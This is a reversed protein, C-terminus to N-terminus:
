GAPAGEMPEAPMQPPRKRRGLGDEYSRFFHRGQGTATEVDDMAAWRILYRDQPDDSNKAAAIEIWNPRPSYEDVLEFTVLMKELWESRDTGLPHADFLVVALKRTANLLCRAAGAGDGAPGRTGYVFHRARVSKAIQFHLRRDMVNGHPYFVDSPFRYRKRYDEMESLCERCCDRYAEFAQLRADSLSSDDCHARQNSEVEIMAAWPEELGEFTQSRSTHDKPDAYAMVEARVTMLDGLAQSARTLEFRSARCRTRESRYIDIANVLFRKGAIHLNNYIVALERDMEALREETLSVEARPHAWSRLTLLQQIADLYVGGLSRGAGAAELDRINDDLSLHAGLLAVEARYLMRVRDRLCELRERMEVTTAASYCEDALYYIPGTLFVNPLTFWRLAQDAESAGGAGEGNTGDDDAEELLRRWINSALNWLPSRNGIGDERCIELETHGRDDFFEENDVLFGIIRDICGTARKLDTRDRLIDEYFRGEDGTGAADTNTAESMRAAIYRSRQECCLKKKQSKEPEWYWTGLGNRAALIFMRGISTFLEGFRRRDVIRGKEMAQVRRNGPTVDILSNLTREAGIWFSTWARLADGRPHFSKTKALAEVNCDFRGLIRRLVARRVLLKKLSVDCERLIQHNLGYLYAAQTYFFEEDRDDFFSRRVNRARVMAQRVEQGFASVVQEGDIVESLTEPLDRIAKDSLFATGDTAFFIDGLHEFIRARVSSQIEPQKSTLDPDVSRQYASVRDLAERYWATALRVERRRMLLEGIFLMQDVTNFEDSCRIYYDLCIVLFRNGAYRHWLKELVIAIQNLGDPLGLPDYGTYLPSPIEAMGGHFTAPSVPDATFPAASCESGPVMSSVLRLRRRLAAYEEDSLAQSESDGACGAEGIHLAEPPPYDLQLPATQLTPGLLSRLGQREEEHRAALAAEVFRVISKYYHLATRYDRDLEYLYGLRSLVRNAATLYTMLSTSVIMQHGDGSNALLQALDTRAWRLAKSYQHRAEQHNGLLEYLQAFRMQAKISELRQEPTTRDVLSLTSTLREFEGAFDAPTFRLEIQEPGFAQYLAALDHKVRPLLMYSQHRRDNGEVLHDELVNLLSEILERSPFLEERHTMFTANELDTWNFGTQFHKLIYDIIHFTAVCGKDNLFRFRDRNADVQGVISAFFKMKQRVATPSYVVLEIDGRRRWYTEDRNDLMSRHQVLGYLERLIKRPIGRGKYTLYQFLYRIRRSRRESMPEAHKFDIEGDFLATTLTSTPEGSRSPQDFPRDFGGTVAFCRMVRFWTLVDFAVKTHEGRDEDGNDRGPRSVRHVAERYCSGLCRDYDQADLLKQEEESPERQVHRLLLKWIELVSLHPTVVLGTNYAWTRYDVGVEQLVTGYVSDLWADCELKRDLGQGGRWPHEHSDILLRNLERQLDARARTAAAVPDDDPLDGAEACAIAAKRLAEYTLWMWKHPGIAAGLDATFTSPLYINQVFISEFLGEGKNQDEQWSDDVDKGAIFIHFANSETLLFKLDSVIRQIRDLKEGALGESISESRPTLKDLEDFIFIVRYQRESIHKLIRHLDQQAEHLSYEYETHSEGSVHTRGTETGMEAKARWFLSLGSGTSGGITGSRRRDTESQDSITAAAVFRRHAEAILPDHHDGFRHAESLGMLEKVMMMVLGRATKTTSLNIRVPVYYSEGKHDPESRSVLESITYNVLSSKGTGRYGTVLISGGRSNRLVSLLRQSGPRPVCYLDEAEHSLVAPERPAADRGGTGGVVNGHSAHHTYLVGSPYLDIWLANRHIRSPWSPLAAQITPCASRACEEVVRDIMQQRHDSSTTNTV